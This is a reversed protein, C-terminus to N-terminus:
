LQQRTINNFPSLLGLEVHEDNQLQKVLDLIYFAITHSDHECQKQTNTVPKSPQTSDLQALQGINKLESLQENVRSMVPTHINNEDLLWGAYARAHEQEVYFKIQEFIPSFNPNDKPAFDQNINLENALQESLELLESM